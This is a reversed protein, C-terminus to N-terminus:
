TIRATGYLQRMALVGSIELIRFAPNGPHRVMKVRRWQGSRDKFHLYKVRRAQIAHPRGGEELPAAYPASNGVEFQTSNGKVKVTWSRAYRGTRPKDGPHKGLKMTSLIQANRATQLAVERAAQGVPGGPLTFIRDVENPFVRGAAM